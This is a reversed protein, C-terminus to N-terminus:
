VFKGVFIEQLLEQNDKRCVKAEVLKWKGNNKRKKEFINFSSCIKKATWLSLLLEITDVNKEWWWKRWGFASNFYLFPFHSAEVIVEYHIEECFGFALLSKKVRKKTWKWALLLLFFRKKTKLLFFFSSFHFSLIILAQLVDWIVLALFARWYLWSFFAKSLFFFDGGRKSALLLFLFFRLHIKNIEIM